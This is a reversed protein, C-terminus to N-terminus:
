PSPAFWGQLDVIVHLTGPSGNRIRIRGDAGPAVVVANARWSGAQFDMVSVTPGADGLPWVQLYGSEQISTATLNLSVATVGTAPVGGVGTVQVDLTAGAAVPIGTGATRTNILRTAAPHLDAGTTADPTFYGQVTVSLHVAAAGRNVFTVGGDPGLAVVAGSQTSGPRHNFVARGQAAGSPAATLWGSEAAGPVLLNVFAATAGPPVLGGTLTVTRSGGAPITGVPTGLGSRTDVLRTHTVPVFGGPGGAATYYGQVEVVVHASGAQNYATLRGSAGVPVVAVNSLSEGAAVNIMSLGPIERGDAWVDVHTAVTPGLVAVRVLVAHVGAAPVGAVGTVPFTTMSAPGRVGTAGGLGSRTDLVGGPTELPVFRLPPAQSGLDHVSYLLRNPSGAGPNVVAGTTANGVLHDRVQAPTWAPHEALVLAAAGGVHPAAMSTGKKTMTATDSSHSASLVDQGPAFIDVCSGFNSNAYRADTTNTAAVTIAAPVRAPSRKCADDNQNSASVTFVVGSAISRAVAKDVASSANMSHSMNAVAPRVANATVWDVGALISATTSKANCDTIRVAVLSVDKAMGFTAGGLIGAVHTGHSHCDAAAGGDIADFGSRARGGFETHSFRIGSDLIYATVGAAGGAHAYRGDLPLNRQDVRDLGWGPPSVQVAGAEEDASVVQNPEVYDVAPDAALRGADAATLRVEFGLLGASYVRGVQGGHAGALRAATGAVEAADMTSVASDKLVVIYSDGVTPGDVVRLDGTEPAALAPGGASALVAAAAWLGIGLSWRRFTSPLNM